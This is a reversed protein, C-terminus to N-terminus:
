YLLRLEYGESQITTAVDIDGDVQVDTPGADWERRMPSKPRIENFEAVMDQGEPLEEVSENDFIINLGQKNIRLTRLVKTAEVDCKMAIGNVLDKLTRQMLYVARYYSDEPPKGVFRPQVYFCAVPKIIREPPPQYVPDVGLAEIWGALTGNDAGSKPIKVPLNPPLTVQVLLLQNEWHTKLSIRGTQKRKSRHLSSSHPNV